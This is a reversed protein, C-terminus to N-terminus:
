KQAVHDTVLERGNRPQIPRNNGAVLARFTGIQGASLAVPTGLVMWQVGESCPPTTLSGEYRYTTRESPLLDDVDVTVHELHVEAGKSKPLNAWVPEFAPNAAGEEIFVGLVALKGQESKHVLHMEMPFQQGELTHESPSHFHYQVLAFSEEGLVLTSGAPYNVQVTHGNNLVDAVHEHHVIRLEAPVYSTKVGPLTASTAGTIDIPSQSRGTGCTSFEPCLGGWDAPGHEGEYSWHPTTPATTITKTEQRCALALGAVGASLSTLLLSPLRRHLM